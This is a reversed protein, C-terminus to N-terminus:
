LRRALIRRASPFLLIGSYKIIRETNNENFGFTTIRCNSQGIIKEAEPDDGNFIGERCQRFLRSKCNLYEGFDRHESPGIHDSSINTFIAYDFPIGYVRELKIAQSSVEMVVARCHNHTM